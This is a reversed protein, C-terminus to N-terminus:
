KIWAKENKIMDIVEWLDEVASWLGARDDLLISFYPKHAKSPGKIPSENIYYKEIGLEKRVVNDVLQLDTNGTYVCLDFGIEYCDVLLERVLPYEEGTNHFDFITNDFDFGVVLKGHKQYERYLREIVNRSDLYRDKVKQISETVDSLLLQIEEDSLTNSTDQLKWGVVYNTHMITVKSYCNKSKRDYVVQYVKEEFVLEDLANFYLDNLEESNTGDYDEDYLVYLTIDDETMPRSVFQRLKDLLFEKLERITKM